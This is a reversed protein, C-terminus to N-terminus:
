NTGRLASLPNVSSISVRGNTWEFTESSLRNQQRRFSGPLLTAASQNSMAAAVLPGCDASAQLAVGNRQNLLACGLLLAMTAPALWGLRFPTHPVPATPRGASGAPETAFIRQKVRWSPRRPTWSHLQMELEKLDNM